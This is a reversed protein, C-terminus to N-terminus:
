QAIAGCAGYRKIADQALNYSPRIGPDDVFDFGDVAGALSKLAELLEAERKTPVPTSDVAERAVSLLERLRTIARNRGKIAEHKRLQHWKQEYADMVVRDLEVLSVAARLLEAEFERATM